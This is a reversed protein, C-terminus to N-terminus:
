PLPCGDPIPIVVRFDNPPAGTDPAVVRRELIVPKKENFYCVDFDRLKLPVASPGDSDEYGHHHCDLCSDMVITKTNKLPSEM